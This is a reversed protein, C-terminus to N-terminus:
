TTIPRRIQSTPSSDEFRFDRHRLKRNQSKPYSQFYWDSLVSKSATPSVSQKNKSDMMSNLREACRQILRPEDAFGDGEEAVIMSIKDPADSTRFEVMILDILESAEIHFDFDTTEQLNSSVPVATNHRGSIRIHSTEQHEIQQKFWSQINENM